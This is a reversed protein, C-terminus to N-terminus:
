PRPSLRLRRVFLIVLLLVVGGVVAGLPGLGTPALEGGGEPTATPTGEGPSPTEDGVTPTGGEVVRTATPAEGGATPTAVPTAPRTATVSPEPTSTAEAVVTPSPTPALFRTYVVLAAIALLGVMLLGVLGIAVFMFVRSQGGDPNRM